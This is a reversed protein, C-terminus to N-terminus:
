RTFPSVYSNRTAVAFPWPCEAGVLGTVTRGMGGTGTAGVSRRATAPFPATDKVHPALLVGFTIYSTKWRSTVAPSFQRM